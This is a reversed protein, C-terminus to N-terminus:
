YRHLHRLWLEFQFYSPLLFFLFHVHSCQQPYITSCTCPWYIFDSGPRGAQTCAHTHRSIVPGFVACCTTISAATLVSGDCQGKGRNCCDRSVTFIHLVLARIGPIQEPCDFMDIYHYSPNWVDPHFATQSTPPAVGGHPPWKLATQESRLSFGSLGGSVSESIFHGSFQFGSMKNNTKWLHLVSSM